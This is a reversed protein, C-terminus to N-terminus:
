RIKIVEVGVDFKDWEREATIAPMKRSLALALCACDGFSLGHERTREHISAAVYALSADFPIPTSVLPTLAATVAEVPMGGRRLVQITECFNVASIVAHPMLPRVKEAGREQNVLAILASADLVCERL